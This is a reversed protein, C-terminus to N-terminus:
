YKEMPCRRISPMEIGITATIGVFWFAKDYHKQLVPSKTQINGISVYRQHCAPQESQPISNQLLSSPALSRGVNFNLYCFHIPVTFEEDFLTEPILFEYLNQDLSEPLRERIGDVRNEARRFSSIKM